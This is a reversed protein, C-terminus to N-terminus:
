GASRSVEGIKASSCGLADECVAAIRSRTSLVLDDGPLRRVGEVRQGLGSQLQYYFDNRKITCGRTCIHDKNAKVEHWEVRMPDIRHLGERM